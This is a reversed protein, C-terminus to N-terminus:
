QLCPIYNDMPLQFVRKFSYPGLDQIQDREFSYPGFDQIRDREVLFTPTYLIKARNYPLFIHFILPTCIYIILYEGFSLLWYPYEAQKESLIHVLLEYLSSVPLDLALIFKQDM